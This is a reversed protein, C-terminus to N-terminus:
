VTSGKERLRALGHAAGGALAGTVLLDWSELGVLPLVAHIPPLLLLGFAFALKLDFTTAAKETSLLFSIPTLMLLAIDLPRPLHGAVQWGLAAALTSFSVTFGSLWFYFAMRREREIKEANLLTLIWITQALFHSALIQPLLRTRPGRIVPLISCVMPLLRISSNSVAALTAAIGAGSALSGVLIIQAPLAWVVVSVLLTETLTWGAGHAFGGFGVM